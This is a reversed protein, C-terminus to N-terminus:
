LCSRYITYHLKVYLAERERYVYMPLAVTSLSLIQVSVPDIHLLPDIYQSEITFTSPGQGKLIQTRHTYKHTHTHTHARASARTLVDNDLVDNDEGCEAVKSRKQSKKLSVSSM